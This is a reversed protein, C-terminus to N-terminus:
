NVETRRAAKRAEYEDMMAAMKAEAERMEALMKQGEETKSLEEALSKEDRKFEADATAACEPCLTADTTRRNPCLVEEGLGGRLGKCLGSKVHARMEVAKRYAAAVAPDNLLADELSELIQGLLAPFADLKVATLLREARDTVQVASYLRVVPKQPAKPTTM